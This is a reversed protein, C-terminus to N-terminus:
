SFQPPMGLDCLAENAVIEPNCVSKRKWPHWGEGPWFFFGVQSPVRITIAGIWNWARKAESGRKERERDMEHRKRQFPRKRMGEQMWNKSLSRLFFRREKRRQKMSLCETVEVTTSNSFLLLKISFSFILKHTHFVSGTDLTCFFLWFCKPIEKFNNEEKEM